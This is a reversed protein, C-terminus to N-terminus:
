RPTATAPSFASPSARSGAACSTPWTAGDRGPMVLDVLAADYRPPTRALAEEASSTADVQFGHRALSKTLM